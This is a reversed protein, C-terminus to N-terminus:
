FFLIASFIIIIGIGLLIAIIGSDFSKKIISYIGIIILFIAAITIAFHGFILGIIGIIILGLASINRNSLFVNM